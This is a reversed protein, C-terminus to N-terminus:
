RNAETRKIERWEEAQREGEALEVEDMNNTLRMRAMAARARILDDQEQLYAATYWVYATTRDTPIGDGKAFIDGLTLQSQPDGNDAALLYWKLAERTNSQVGMGKHYIEGLRAQARLHDKEAAYTFWRIAEDVNAEVGKGDRYLLALNYQADVYNQMAALKYWKFAEPPDAPVGKGQSYLLGVNTQASPDGAEALPRWSKMAMAYDGNAYAQMGEQFIEQPSKKCGGLLMAAVLTGVAVLWTQVCRTAKAENM